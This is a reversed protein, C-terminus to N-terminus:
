PCYRYRGGRRRRRPFRTPPQRLGARGCHHHLCSSTPTRARARHWGRGPRRWRSRHIFCHGNARSAPGGGRPSLPAERPKLRSRRTCCGAFPSARGPRHRLTNACWTRDAATGSILLGSMRNKGSEGMGTIKNKCLRIGAIRISACGAELRAQVPTLTSRLTM